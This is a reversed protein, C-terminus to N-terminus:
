WKLLKVSDPLSGRDEIIEIYGKQALGKLARSDSYTSCIGNRLANWETEFWELEYDIKVKKDYKQYFETRKEEFDEKSINPRCEKVFRLNSDVFYERMDDFSKAIRIEEKIKEHLEKQQPTLKTNAM